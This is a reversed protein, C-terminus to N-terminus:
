IELFSDVILDPCATSLMAKDHNGYTVACTRCGAGRGMIIDYTTDGVVLTESAKLSLSDLVYLVTDPEPKHRTVSEVTALCSFYEGLGFQKLLMKLSRQSRSTAIGMTIGESFFGELGERVGDFLRVHEYAILDFQERYVRVAEDLLEEPLHGGARLSERLPLGIAKSIDEPSTQPAGIIDLMAQVTKVIGKNTDAITGDFDFVINKIGEHKM